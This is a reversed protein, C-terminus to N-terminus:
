GFPDSTEEEPKEDPIRADPQHGEALLQPDAMSGHSRPGTLGGRLKLQSPSLRPGHRLPPPPTPPMWAGASGAGAPKSSPVRTPLALRSGQMAWFVEQRFLGREVQSAAPRLSNECRGGRRGRRGRECTAPAGSLAM